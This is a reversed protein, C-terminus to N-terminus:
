LAKLRSWDDIDHIAHILEHRLIAWRKQLGAARCVYITGMNADEDEFSSIWVGDVLKDTEDEELLTLLAKATTLEVKVYFHPGLWIRPPLCRKM